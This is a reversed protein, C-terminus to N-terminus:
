GGSVPSRYASQPLDRPRDSVATGDPVANSAVDFWGDEFVIRQHTKMAKNAVLAMIADGMAATGDCRPQLNTVGQERMRIIYAFHEMEERYGKSPPGHGVSAAGIALATAAGGGESASTTIAPQSTNANAVGVATSRGVTGWLMAREERETVLTGNSGMVCEGYPEFDNTNISSYTVVV